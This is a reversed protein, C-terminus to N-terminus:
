EKLLELRKLNVQWRIRTLAKKCDTVEGLELQTLPKSALIPSGWKSDVIMLSGAGLAFQTPAGWSETGLRSVMRPNPIGMKDVAEPSGALLLAKMADLRSHRDPESGWGFGATKFQFVTGRNEATIPFYSDIEGTEIHMRYLVEGNFGYIFAHENGRDNLTAEQMVPLFQLQGDDMFRKFNFRLDRQSFQFDSSSDYGGFYAQIFRYAIESVIQSVIDKLERRRINTDEGLRTMLAKSENSLLIPIGLEKEAQRHYEYLFIQTYVASLPGDGFMLAFAQILYESTFAGPTFAHTEDFYREHNFFQHGGKDNSTVLGHYPDRKQHIRVLNFFYTDQLDRIIFRSIKGSGVNVVANINQTHSAHFFGLQYHLFAAFRAIEPLYIQRIWQEPTLHAAASLRELIGSRLDFLAHVPILEESGQVEDAIRDLDRILISEIAEDGSFMIQAFESFHLRQGLDREDNSLITSFIMGSRVFNWSNMQWRDPDSIDDNQFRSIKFVYHRGREEDDVLYSSHGSIRLAPLSGDPDGLAKKLISFNKFGVEDIAFLRKPIAGNDLRGFLDEVYANGVSHGSVTILPHISSGRLRSPTIDWYFLRTAAEANSRSDRIIAYDPINHQRDLRAYESWDVQAFLSGWLGSVLSM